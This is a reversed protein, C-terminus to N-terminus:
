LTVVHAIPTVLASVSDALGELYSEVLYSLHRVEDVCNRIKRSHCLCYTVCVIMYGSHAEM